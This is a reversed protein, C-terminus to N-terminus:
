SFDVIKGIIIEKDALSTVAIAVTGVTPEPLQSVVHVSYLRFPRCRGLEEATDGKAAIVRTNVKHPLPLRSRRM